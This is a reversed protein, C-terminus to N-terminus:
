VADDMSLAGVCLFAAGLGRAGQVGGNRTTIVFALWGVLDHWALLSECMDKSEVSDFVLVIKEIDGCEVCGALLELVARVAQPENQISSGPGRSACNNM